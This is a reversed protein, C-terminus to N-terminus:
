MGRQDVGEERAPGPGRGGCTGEGSKLQFRACAAWIWEGRRAPDPCMGCLDVGEERAPGPGMGGCTGEGRKLQVPGPVHWM